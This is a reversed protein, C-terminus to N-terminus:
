WPCCKVRYFLFLFHSPKKACYKEIAELATNIDGDNEYRYPFFFKEKDSICVKLVACGAVTTYAANFYEQWMLLYGPSYYSLLYPYNQGLQILRGLTSCSVTEFQVIHHSIPVESSNSTIEPANEKATYMSVKAWVKMLHIKINNYWLFVFNSSVVYDTIDETIAYRLNSSVQYLVEQPHEAHGMSNNTM